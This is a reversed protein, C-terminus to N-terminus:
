DVEHESEYEDDDEKYNSAQTMSTGTSPFM